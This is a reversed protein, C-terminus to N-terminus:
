KAVNEISNWQRGRFGIQLAWSMHVVFISPSILKNELMQFHTKRENWCCWCSVLLFYISGMTRDILAVMQYLPFFCSGNYVCMKHTRVLFFPKRRIFTIIISITWYSEHASLLSPNTMKYSTVKMTFNTKKTNNEKEQKPASQKKRRWKEKEQRFCFHDMTVCHTTNKFPKYNYDINFRDM